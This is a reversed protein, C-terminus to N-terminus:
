KNAVLETNTPMVDVLKLTDPEVTSLLTTILPVQVPQPVPPPPPPPTFVDVAM